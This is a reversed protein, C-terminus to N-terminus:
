LSKIFSYVFDRLDQENEFEREAFLRNNGRILLTAPISGSWSKDVKEIWNNYNIDALLIIESTFSNEVLFKKLRTKMQNKFDLSVLFVKIKEDRASRNLDEFYPLEKVCPKCWTAWFNIVYTTDNNLFIEKEMKDFTDYIRIDQAYIMNVLFLWFTSFILVYKYM